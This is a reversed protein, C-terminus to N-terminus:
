EMDWASRYRRYLFICILASLLSGLPAALGMPFLTAPFLISALWAGPVRVLAVSIMNHVFSFVSKGYASFFGSFCFHIGAIMCDLSYSRLYEGGLMVVSPDNRVFMGAISAAAFQCLIWCVAGFSVCFLIAIKLAQRSREHLGAGANQSAIASVSSLMASPVLFLFSIIKEVIGVAAAVDVGRSNAIATIILFSIQILGDQCAIPLGIGVIHHLTSGDPRFDERTIQIGIGRRCLAFLAIIVSVAQSAVTATAAGAAGLSLPGILLYDGIINIVGAVAVFVMPSKTDGLGRFISAIVNYATIFPVGIFCITLYRRTEGVAESPVDLIHIIGGAAAVLLLTAATAFCLFLVVSNGITRAVSKKDGAGVSRGIGVLAGTALGVIIVTLMHMVQSGVSVGSIAAAGNFQGTIFLDALGYFTQLFSSFLFPVSFRALIGAMNGKTLDHQM